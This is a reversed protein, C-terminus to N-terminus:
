RQETWAYPGVLRGDTECRFWVTHRDVMPYKEHDITHNDEIPFAHCASSAKAFASGYANIIPRAQFVSPPIDDYRTDACGAFLAIAMVATILKKMM